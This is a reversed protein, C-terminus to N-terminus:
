SCVFVEKPFSTLCAQRMEIAWRMMNLNVMWTASGAKSLTAMAKQDQTSVFAVTAMVQTMVM